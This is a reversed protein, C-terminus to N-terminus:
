IEPLLIQSDTWFPAQLDDLRKDVKLVAIFVQVVHKSM